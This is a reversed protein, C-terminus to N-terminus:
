FQAPIKTVKTQLNAKIEVRAEQQGDDEKLENGGMKLFKSLVESFLGRQTRILQQIDNNQDDYSYQQAYINDCRKYITM